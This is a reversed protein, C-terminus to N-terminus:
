YENDEPPLTWIFHLHDLLVVGAVPEFPWAARVERVAARLREVNAPDGFLPRRHNTVLTFFFTGGPRYARRYDPM